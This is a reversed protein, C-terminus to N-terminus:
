NSRKLDKDKDWNRRKVGKKTNKKNAENQIKTEM